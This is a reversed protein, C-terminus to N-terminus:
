KKTTGGDGAPIGIINQYAIGESPVCMQEDLEQDPVWKFHHQGLIPQTYFKPDNITVALDLTDHDKRTYREEITMDISHPHGAGDIWSRDDAGNTEVVFTNDDEWHGVSYGFWRPDPGHKAGVNKPLDRGDTWIERWVRDYQWLQLMRNPIAAFVVGRTQDLLKRPMGLPDCVVFPDNTGALTYKNEPKNLSFAAQGAPTMPPVNRPGSGIPGAWSGNLERKPAPGAPKGKDNLNQYVSPPHQAVPGTQGQALQAKALPVCALVALLGAIANGFPIRVKM